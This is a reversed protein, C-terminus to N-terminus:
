PRSLNIDYKKKDLGDDGSFEPLSEDSNNDEWDESKNWSQYRWLSVVLTDVTQILVMAQVM